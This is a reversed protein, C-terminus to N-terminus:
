CKVVGCGVVAEELTNFVGHGVSAGIKEVVCKVWEEAEERTSFEGDDQAERASKVIVGIWPGAVGNFYHLVDRGQILPTQPNNEVNEMASLNLMLKAPEPFGTLAPPRGSADSEILYCLMRISSPALRNALRRVIRKWRTHEANDESYDDFAAHALHNEVLAVVQVIISEKIGISELFRRALPGGAKEHGHATWRFDGNPLVKRVTCTAKAFDHCLSSFILVAREDGTLGERNAVRAAYNLVHRTHVDVDGEPHWCPSQPVGIIAKIEPYLEIWGTQQLFQIVEGPQTGTTWKMWEDAIREKSLHAYGQIMDQSMAILEHTVSCNFRSQFQMCRLVRLADEKFAPSTPRMNKFGWDAEGNFYDHLEQTVPNYSMANFTLDRRLAAERPTINEDFSCDFGTHEVGTRSERRPISFDYHNSSNFPKFKIVGFSKGVVDVTGSGGLEVQLDLYSIGYVEIDYDNVRVNAQAYITDRVCGGVFLCMNGKNNLRNIVKHIEGRHVADLAPIPNYKVGDM